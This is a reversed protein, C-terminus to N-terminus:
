KEMINKLVILFTTLLHETIILLGVKNSNGKMLIGETNVIFDNIM